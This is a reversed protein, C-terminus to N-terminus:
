ARAPWRAADPDALATLLAPMLRRPLILLMHPAQVTLTIPGEACNSTGILRLPSFSLGELPWALGTSQATVEGMPFLSVADGAETPLHLRPPALCVVEHAGLLICPRDPYKVLSHFVALQHDVRAGLFGVGLIVPAAIRTLCKEFDTSDQEAIPHQRDAPIEARAAHSLSDFDGMVAEPVVGAALAVDAGGDAAVCLPALTLAKHIDQPTTEGGGVLTVPANSAVISTNM